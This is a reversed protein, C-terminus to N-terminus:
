VKYRSFAQTAVANLLKTWFEHVLNVSLICRVVRLKFLKGM